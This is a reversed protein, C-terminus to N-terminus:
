YMRLFQYFIAKLHVYRLMTEMVLLFPNVQLCQQFSHLGLIARTGSLTTSDCYKVHVKVISGEFNGM